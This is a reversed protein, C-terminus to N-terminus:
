SELPARQKGKEGFHCLEGPLALLEVYIVIGVGGRGVM